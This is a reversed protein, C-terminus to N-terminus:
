YDQGSFIIHKNLKALLYIFKAQWEYDYRGLFYSKNNVYIRVMWKNRNKDFTYGKNLQKLIAGM